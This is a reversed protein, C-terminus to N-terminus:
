EEIFSVEITGDSNLIIQYCIGSLLGETTMGITISLIFMLSGEYYAWFLPLGFCFVPPYDVTTDLSTLTAYLEANHAKEVETLPESGDFSAGICLTYFSANGGGSPTSNVMEILINALSEATIGKQDNPTIISQIADIIENKTM